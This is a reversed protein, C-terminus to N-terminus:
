LSLEKSSSTLGTGNAAFEALADRIETRVIAQIRREMGVTATEGTFRVYVRGDRSVAEFGERFAVFYGRRISAVVENSKRSTSVNGPWLAWRSPNSRLFEAFKAYEDRTNGGGNNFPPPDALTFKPSPRDLSKRDPKLATSEHM